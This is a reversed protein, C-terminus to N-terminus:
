PASLAQVAIKSNIFKSLVLDIMDAQYKNKNLVIKLKLVDINFLDKDSCLKYARELLCTILDLKYSQSTLSKRNLYTRNM